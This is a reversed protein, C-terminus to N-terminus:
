PLFKACLFAISILVCWLALKGNPPWALAFFGIIAFIVAATIM